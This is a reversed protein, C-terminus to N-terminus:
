RMRSGLQEGTVTNTERHVAELAKRAGRAHELAARYEKEDVPERERVVVKRREERPKLTGYSWMIGEEKPRRVSVLVVRSFEEREREVSVNALPSRRTLLRYVFAFRECGIQATSRAVDRWVAGSDM